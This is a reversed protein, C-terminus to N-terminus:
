GIMTCPWLLHTRGSSLTCELITQAARLGSELAFFVGQGTAPDLQAAADGVLLLGPMATPRVARWTVDFGRASLEIPAGALQLPVRESKDTYPTLLTWAITNIDTQATWLWGKGHKTFRARDDSLQGKVAGRWAMLPASCTKYRLGLKSAAWQQRGTADIVWRSLLTEKTTNVGIVQKEKQILGLVRTNRRIQVGLAEARAQLDLDFRARDIHYGLWPGDPDAGFPTYHDGVQIGPFRPWNRQRFQQGIGLRDILTICGPHLSEAPSPRATSAAQRECVVVSLGDMACRIAAATGAPGAGIVVVDHM